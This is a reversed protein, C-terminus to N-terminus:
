SQMRVFYLFVLSNLSVVWATIDEVLDEVGVEVESAKIEEESARNEEGEGGTFTDM